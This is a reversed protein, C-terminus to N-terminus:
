FLLPEGRGGEQQLAGASPTTGVPELVAVALMWGLAPVSPGKRTVAMGRDQLLAGVCLGLAIATPARSQVSSAMSKVQVM